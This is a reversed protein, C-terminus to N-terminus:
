NKPQPASTTSSNIVPCAELVGPIAAIKEAIEFRKDADRITVSASNFSAKLELNLESLTVGPSFIIKFDPTSEQEEPAEPDAFELTYNFDIATVEPMKLIQEKIENGRTEDDAACAFHVELKFKLKTEILDAMIADIKDQPLRTHPGANDNQHHTM